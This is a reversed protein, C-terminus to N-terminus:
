PNDGSHEYEEKWEEEKIEQYSIFNGQVVGEAVAICIQEEIRVSFDDSIIKIGQAKWDSLFALYETEAKEEAEAESMKKQMLEYARVEYNRIRFPVEYDRFVFPVIDFTIIDYKGESYRPIYSFLKEQLWFFGVGKKSETWIKEKYEMQYVSQYSYETELYVKGQAGVPKLAIIEDYDGVVPVIGSILIDGETVIDGNKVQAIGSIVEIGQVIGNKEAVIHSPVETKGINDPMTSENLRIYLNCGKKEVSVWGIENYILRLEREIEACDVSDKGIGGYVQLESKLVQVIQARTHVFGGQVDIYWIREACQVLFFLGILGGIIVGKRKKIRNILFPLGEKKEIKPCCGTKRVLPKIKIYDKCTMKCYLIDNISVIDIIEIKRSKCLNLFREKSVGQLRVILYGKLYLFLKEFM